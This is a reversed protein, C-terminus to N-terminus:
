KSGEKVNRAKRASIVGGCYPCYKWSKYIKSIYNNACRCVKRKRPKYSEVFVRGAMRKRLYRRIDTLTYGLETTVKVIVSKM